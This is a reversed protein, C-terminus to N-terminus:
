RKDMIERAFRLLQDRSRERIPKTPVGANVTWPEIDEKVLSCAGVTAGEGITVGPLVVVNAGLIVYKGLRVFSRKVNRYEPPVTPNALYPGSYDDTGTFIKCGASMCSFDEMIFVGGGIVNCFSSIHTYNGLITEKGGGLLVFDDIMVNSKISIVEPNLIKALPYITVNEGIENFEM